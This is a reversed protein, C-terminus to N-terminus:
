QVSSYLQSFFKPELYTDKAGFICNTSIMFFRDAIAQPVPTTSCITRFLGRTDWFYLKAIDPFIPRLHGSARSDDLLYTYNHFFNQEFYAELAGFICNPSIRFFRDSTAQPVRTTSCILM